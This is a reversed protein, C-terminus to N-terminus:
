FPLDYGAFKRIYESVNTGFGDSPDVTGGSALFRQVNKPGLLHAGGLLGSPTIVIDAVTEGTYKALDLRIIASWQLANFRRIAFEQFAPNILFDQKSNVARAKAEVTWSGIWDNQKTGDPLYLRCTILASEGFQYKGLYRYPNTNNEYNGGSERKGLADLYAEYTGALSSSYYTSWAVIFLFFVRLKNCFM